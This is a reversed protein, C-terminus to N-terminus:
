NAWSQGKDISAGGWGAISLSPIALTALFLAWAFVYGPQRRTKLRPKTYHRFAKWGGGESAPKLVAAMGEHSTSVGNNWDKRKESPILRYLWILSAPTGHKFFWSPTIPARPGAPIPLNTM